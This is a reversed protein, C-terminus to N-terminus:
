NAIDEEAWDNVIDRATFSDEGPKKEMTMVLPEDNRFSFGRGSSDLHPSSVGLDLMIKDAKDKNALALFRDMERFNGEFLKFEVGAKKLKIESEEIADSDRDIGLIFITGGKEKAKRAAELSHGARGLTGDVVVDGPRIDLGDITEQLLVSEHM